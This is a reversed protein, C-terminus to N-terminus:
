YLVSNAQIRATEDAVLGAISKRLDGALVV